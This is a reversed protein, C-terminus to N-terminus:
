YSVFLERHISQKDPILKLILDAVDARSVKPVGSLKISEGFRYRRTLPGDTLISPYLLTWNVNSKHLYEEGSKKDIVQDFLQIRIMLRMIIRLLFSLRSTKVVIGSTFILRQVRYREMAEVIIPISRKILGNSPQGPPVGLTSIVADTGQIADDVAEPDLVDGQVCRLKPHSVRLKEPTRVLVTLEHGQDLAQQVVEKGVGGTAGLVLIRM